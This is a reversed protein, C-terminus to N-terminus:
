LSSLHELRLYCIKEWNYLDAMDQRLQEAKQIAQHPKKEVKRMARYFDMPEDCLYSNKETCINTYPHINSVIVTRRKAAFELAKLESKRKNFANDALPVIGVGIADYLMAYKDIPLTELRHYRTKPAIRGGTLIDEFQLSTDPSGYDFGGLAVGWSLDRDKWYKQMPKRLIELDVGHARSGVWGFINSPQRAVNWQKENLNIANPIIAVNNNLLRIDQALLEHTCWVQNSAKICDEIRASTGQAKYMTELLHGKHLNWSDDIDCIVKVGMAQAAKITDVCTEDPGFLRNFILVDIGKLYKEVAQVDLGPQIVHLKIMENDHMWYAWSQLRHYSVGSEKNFVIAINKM